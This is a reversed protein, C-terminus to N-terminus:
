YTSAFSKECSDRVFAIQNMGKAEEGLEEEMIRHYLEKLTEHPAEKKGDSDEHGDM